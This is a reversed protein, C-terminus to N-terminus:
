GSAAMKRRAHARPKLSLETLMVGFQGDARTAAETGGSVGAVRKRSRPRGKGNKSPIDTLVGVGFKRAWEIDRETAPAAEYHDERVSKPPKDRFIHKAERHARAIRTAREPTETEVLAFLSAGHYSVKWIRTGDTM